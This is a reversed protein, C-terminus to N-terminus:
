QELLGKKMDSYELDAENRDKLMGEYEVIKTKKVLKYTIFLVGFLIVSMYSILIEGWDGKRFWKLNSLIVVLACFVMVAIPGLPFWPAYYHLYELSLNQKQFARRFRYHSISITFWNIFGALSSAAILNSYIDWPLFTLFYTLISVTSTGLLAFLPVGSGMTRSFISPAKRNLALSYLMRSSSYLMSNMSSLISSLIIANMIDAAVAVGVQRLVITFPSKTVDEAGLLSKDTYPILCAIILISFIYFVLIRWFVQRIARPISNHPDDSEAATIGVLETGQFSFGAIVIATVFGEVGGVFPADEVVFNRFYTAEGIAGFIRLVGLLIFAIITIIKVLALWFEIEGFSRATFANILFILVFASIHWVYTPTTPLWYQVLIGSSIADVTLVISNKFFDNWGSAFGLAPDVFRESYTSFSGSTPLYTAVEGVWTKLQRKFEIKINHIV